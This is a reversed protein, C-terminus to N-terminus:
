KGPTLTVTEDHTIQTLGSVGDAGVTFIQKIGRADTRLFAIRSGDPSVSPQGANAM